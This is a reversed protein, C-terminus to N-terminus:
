PRLQPSQLPLDRTAPSLLFFNGGLTPSVIQPPPDVLLLPNLLNSHQNLMNKVETRDDGPPIVANRQGQGM